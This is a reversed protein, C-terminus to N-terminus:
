VYRDPSKRTSYRAMTEKIELAMAPGVGPVAEIEEASARRLRALSGFHRLIEQKRKEGVGPIEDLMSERLRKLRLRRHYTIAFRHAEDRIRKCVYLAPSGEPFRVPQRVAQSEVYGTQAYAMDMPYIEEFRKALGVAPLDTLGLADLEARAARLQTIGGDVIVLDPLEGQEDRLRQYRRRIVEAMMRPDDSGEVTKIRFLRYRKRQPLGDVACVMSGVAFTGSINSIDFTEIVRPLRALGLAEQIARIGDKAEDQKIALSKEGRIRRKVADQLLFLTDRYAAAQEFDHREAAAAMAERVPQLLEPREGRLFAIAEEVQARYAEPTIKGVCPASCFRIIDNMCHRHDAPGPERPRCVRLGFQKELFEKAVYVAASNAYPGFYLAQDQKRIRSTTFRPWPETPDIRLLLFRKDDRFLVNYRPRYEKILRGETITAEADSRLELYEFDAISRILGRLKPEAKRLTSDRFYSRVRNRLSVAKGVYIIKGHRDRMFYVGPKDPLGALKQQISESWAM